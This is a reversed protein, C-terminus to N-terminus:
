IALKIQKPLVKVRVPSSGKLDGDPMLSFLPEAYIEVDTTKIYRCVDTMATHKGSFTKLFGGLFKVRGLDHLIIIDMIGDDYKAEPALMLSGGSYISNSVTLFYVNDSEFVDKGSNYILKTKYPKFEKLNFVTGLAYSLGGLRKINKDVYSAIDSIFGMGLLNICYMVANTNIETVELVDLDSFKGELYHHLAEDITDIKFDKLFSNGSGGPIPLIPLREDKNKIQMLANCISSITGDGGFSIILDHKKEKHIELIKKNTEELSVSPYLTYNNFIKQSNLKEKLFEIHQDSRGAKAKAHYFIIPDTFRAITQNNPM